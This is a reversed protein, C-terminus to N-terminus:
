QLEHDIIASLEKAYTARVRFLGGCENEFLFLVMRLLTNRMLSTNKQRDTTLLPIVGLPDPYDDGAAIKRAEAENGLLESLAVNMARLTEAPTHGDRLHTASALALTRTCLLVEESPRLPVPKTPLKSAQPPAQPASALKRILDTFKGM